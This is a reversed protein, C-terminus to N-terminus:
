SKPHVPSSPIHIHIRSCHRPVLLSKMSWSDAGKVVRLVKSGWLRGARYVRSGVFWGSSPCSVAWVRSFLWISQMKTLFRNRVTTLMWPVMLKGPASIPFSVQHHHGELNTQLLGSLIGTM